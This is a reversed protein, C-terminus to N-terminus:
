FIVREENQFYTIKFNLIPKTLLLKYKKCFSKLKKNIRNVFCFFLINRWIMFTSYFDQPTDFFM